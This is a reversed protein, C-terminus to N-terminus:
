SNHIRFGWIGLDPISLEDALRMFFARFPLQTHQFVKVAAGKFAEGSLKWAYDLPWRLHCRVNGM